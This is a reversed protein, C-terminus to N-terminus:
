GDLERPSKLSLVALASSVNLMYLVQKEKQAGLKLLM